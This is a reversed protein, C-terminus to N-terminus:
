MQFTVVSRVGDDSEIRFSGDLQEALMTVITLGFGWSSHDTDESSAFGPGDDQVTLVASEDDVKTLEIQIVGGSRGNFAYKFANTLLENLIIGLSVARKPSIPFDAIRHEITIAGQGNMVASLSGVLKELYKKTSMEKFSDDALLNEYLARISRVRSMAEDLASKVESSTTAGAQLSLMSEVQAMNNKIRHHVEQLLTEKEALQHAIQKEAHIRDTIDHGFCVLQDNEGGLFSVSVEVDRITGDKRRHRTQFRANGIRKIQAIRQATEEPPEDADIDSIVMGRLEDRTYGTMRCFADNADIFWGDLNLVWFGDQTTRLISRFFSNADREAIKTASEVSLVETYVIFGGISEDAEYWPRCEWRTFMITGDENEYPDDAGNSVEGRLAKDHADRYKQPLNPFVDYHHKGIIDRDQVRFQDLYRKSVYVYRYERDHVAVAGRSHEIIYRMLDRSHLLAAKHRQEQIRAEHLRLAMKISTDLVTIGSDKVVYGYSSIQETKAVFEPDTHSSLFIIPVDREQLIREAAETGDIGTGLSIDMLVLDIQSDEHLVTSVAAEGTEVHRVSYGIKQLQTKQVLAPLQEDEVLLLSKQTTTM